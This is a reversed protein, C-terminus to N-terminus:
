LILYIACLLWKQKLRIRNANFPSCAFYFCTLWMTSHHGQLTKSWCNPTVRQRNQFYKRIRELWLSAAACPCAMSLLALCNCSWMYYCATNMHPSNVLDNCTSCYFLMKAVHMCPFVKKAACLIIPLWSINDM